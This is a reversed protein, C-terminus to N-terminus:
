KHNPDMAPDQKADETTVFRPAVGWASFWGLPKWYKHLLNNILIIFMIALVVACGSLITMALINTANEVM